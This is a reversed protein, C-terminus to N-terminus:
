GAMEHQIQFEDKSIPKELIPISFFFTSGKGIESEVWIKGDDQEVIKKCTALGVGTGKYEYKGQLRKFVKFIQKEYTMDLGIGNDKIAFVYNGGEKFSSIQVVPIKEENFKIANDILNQVVELIQNKRGILQPLNTCKIEAKKEDIQEDLNNSAMQVIEAMDVMIMEEEKEDLKAYGLVDNLLSYLKSAGDTIYNLFENGEDDLKNKYRRKVLSAYSGITRLPEKLDHSVIFAFSRLKENNAELKKYNFQIERNKLELLKNNKKQTQYNRFILWALLALSLIGGMLGWTYTRSLEYNKQVIEVEKQQVEYQTKAEKMNEMMTENVLSDNLAIYNNLFDNAKEFEKSRTYAISLASYSELILHKSQIKKAMSLSSNLYDIAKKYNGMELHTNGLFELSETQGWSDNTEKKILYSEEFYVLASDFKESAFYNYGINHASYALGIKYNMKKALQFAQLNYSTSEELKGLRSYTGGIAGLSNYQYRESDVRKAITYTEKYKELALEYNKQYFFISGLEFFGKMIQTSDNSLEHIQLSNLQLQYAKELNGLHQHVKSFESYVDALYPQQSASPLGLFQNFINISEEYNSLKRSNMGFHYFLKPLIKRNSNKQSLILCKQFFSDAEIYSNEERLQIAIEICKEANKCDELKFNNNVSESEQGYSVICALNILFINLYTYKM